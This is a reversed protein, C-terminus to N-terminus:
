GEEESFSIKHLVFIVILIAGALMVAATSMKQIDLVQFWNHFIHQLLYMSPHPYSGAVLYAERFVKFSNVLSLVATILFTSRLGPLTIHWFQKIKGAGDIAAAEYLSKSIGALGALWLIIDYGMNKWLYSFVLVGFAKESQLFSVKEMGWAGLLTNLLGAETFFAKWLIVVSAVPVAMPALFISKLFDGAKQFEYLLVSLALSLLLLLPIATLTFKVTNKSAILFSERQFIDIYNYFGVFKGNMAEYFSRKIIDLFPILVFILVGLFSPALFLWAM